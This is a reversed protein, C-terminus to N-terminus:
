GSNIQFLWEREWQARYSFEPTTTQNGLVTYGLSLTENKYLTITEVDTTHSTSIPQEVKDKIIIKLQLYPFIYPPPPIKFTSQLEPFPIVKGQYCIDKIREAGRERWGNLSLWPSISHLATIPAWQSFQKDTQQSHCLSDWVQIAYQTLPLLKYKKDRLHKPIWMHDVVSGRPGHQNEIDVWQLTSPPAHLKVANEIIASM